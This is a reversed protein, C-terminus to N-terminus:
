PTNLVHVQQLLSVTEGADSLTLRASVLGNRTGAGPDYDFQCGAVYRAALAGSATFPNGLFGYGEVRQLEGGAPDCVYAVPATVVQFRQDPSAFPFHHPAVLSVYTANSAAADLSARNDGLYANGDSGSATLNYVVVEPGGAAPLDFEGMVDFGDDSQSFDLIDGNGSGDVYARYRGGAVTPIFELAVRGGDVRVRVSNPLAARVERTMLMLASDAAEVLEARRKMDDFARFPQVIFVSAVAVMAGILVIVIIM